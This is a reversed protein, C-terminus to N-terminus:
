RFSEVVMLLGILFVIIGACAWFCSTCGAGEIQDPGEIANGDHPLTRPTRYHDPNYDTRIPM